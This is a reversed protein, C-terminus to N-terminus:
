DEWPLHEEEEVYELEGDIYIKELIDPEEQPELWEPHKSVKKCFDKNWIVADERPYRGNRDYIVVNCDKYYKVQLKLGTKKYFKNLVDPAFGEPIKRELKKKKQKYNKKTIPGLYNLVAKPNKIAITRIVQLM